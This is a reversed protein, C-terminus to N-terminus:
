DEDPRFIGTAACSECIAHASHLDGLPIPTERDPYLCEVRYNVPGSRHGVGIAAEMRRFTCRRLHAPDPALPTLIPLLPRTGGPFPLRGPASAPATLPQAIASPKPTALAV